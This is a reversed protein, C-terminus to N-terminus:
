KSLCCKCFSMTVSHKKWANIQSWDECITKQQRPSLKGECLECHPLSSEAYKFYLYCLLVFVLSFCSVDFDIDVICM